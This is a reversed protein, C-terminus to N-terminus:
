IAPQGTLLARLKKGQQLATPTSQKIKIVESALTNYHIPDADLKLMENAFEIATNGTEILSGEQWAYGRKGATTTIIPIEWEIAKALKMSAGRSYYFIPNIFYKWNKVEFLLEENNLGGLYKVFPYKSELNRGIHIPQGIIRIESNIGTKKLLDFLQTLASINPTHNLTGVYGFINKTPNRVISEERNILRSVYFPNNIGLWKEIASEEESMTCVLDVYNKRFLSETYLNLGLKIKGFFTYLRNFIPNPNTLNGLLDGSENGHSMIIIKPSIQLKFEKILKSFRLLESKNIFVHSIKNNELTAKLQHRYRYPRYSLYNDLNLKYLMRFLISRNHRVKFFHLEDVTNEIISLFEKSCIQVGGAIESTLDIENYLFLGIM